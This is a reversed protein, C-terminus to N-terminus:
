TSQNENDMPLFFLRLIVRRHDKRQIVSLLPSNKAAQFICDLLITKRHCDKPMLALQIWHDPKQFFLFDWPTDNFTAITMWTGDAIFEQGVKYKADHSSMRFRSRSFMREFTQLLDGPRSSFHDEEDENDQLISDTKTDQLVDETHTSTSPKKTISRYLENAANQKKESTSWDLPEVPKGM